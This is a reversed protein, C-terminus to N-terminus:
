ICRRLVTSLQPLKARGKTNEQGSFVSRLLTSLHGKLQADTAITETSQPYLAHDSQINAMYYFTGCGKRRSSFFFVQTQQHCVPRNPTTLFTLMVPLYVFFISATGALLM